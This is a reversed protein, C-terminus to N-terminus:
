LEIDDLYTDLVGDPECRHLRYPLGYFAGNRGYNEWVFEKVKALEYNTAPQYSTMSFAEREWYGLPGDFADQDAPVGIYWTNPVADANLEAAFIPKEFEFAAKFVNVGAATAGNLTDTFWEASTIQTGRMRYNTPAIILTPMLGAPAAGGHQITEIYAVVKAVNEATFDVGNHLNSYTLDSDGGVPHSKRFFAGGDFAQLTKGTVPNTASKGNMMLLAALRQPWYAAAAGTETAWKSSRDIRDDSMQSRDLALANGFHEYMIEHSASVIPDFVMDKGRPGLHHIRATEQNWEVIRKASSSPPEVVMLRPWWLNKLTRNWANVIKYSLDTEFDTIYQRNIIVATSM